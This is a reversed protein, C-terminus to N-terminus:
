LARCTRRMEECITQQRRLEEAFPQHIEREGAEDAYDWLGNRCYRDNDWGPFNVVPYLCVGEVPVGQRLAACVEAGVYRIWEARADGEAGTEGVFLPRQYREFVERLIDRFQRYEPHSRSLLPGAEEPNLYTWQNWPYYNVGIVDLYKDRGGLHPAQRGALMDWAQYQSQRNAEAVAREHPRAPDAVVNFVPDVHFIRARPSVDWVAEIGAITARVLQEKVENGRGRRFPYIRGMDGAAWAVFSIENIPAILPTTDTEGALLVAFARALRAFRPVFDAGLIDLDDPWGFHCLDWMVQMGADRAARVMPLVSEFEYRYPAREILHWRIGERVTLIGRARLRAYDAAAHRDHGTAAVLDLRKGSALRHTSCEFGGLFFSRFLPVSFSVATPRDPSFVSRRRPSHGGWTSHAM